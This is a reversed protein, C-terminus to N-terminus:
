VYKIKENIQLSLEKYIEAMEEKEQDKYLNSRNILWLFLNLNSATDELQSLTHKKLNEFNIYKISKKFDLKKKSIINYIFKEFLQQGEINKPIPAFMFKYKEKLKMEVCINDIVSATTIIQSIDCIKFVGSCDSFYKSYTKVIDTIKNEFDQIKSFEQLHEFEPFFFSININSRKKTSKRTLWLYKEYDEHSYPTKRDLYKVFGKKYIGFRGARGAIQLFETLEIIDIDWGNFKTVSSFLIRRISLNLGYGIANTAILIDVKGNNFLESQKIKTDPPLMGYIVATSFGYSEIKNKLTYIDKKSFCVVADGKRLERFSISDQQIDLNSLRQFKKIELEDNCKTAITKIIDEADISGVLIVTQANVGLIARAWANGRQQDNLMQVEDIIAVEYEEELNLMEITSSIHTEEKHLIKEEGTILSINLIEKKSDYIERALLKLPALYIGTDAKDLLKLANHTKGSNTPGLYAIIKRKKSRANLYFEEINTVTAKAKLLEIKKINEKKIVQNEKVMGNLYNDINKIKENEDSCTYTIDFYEKHKDTDVFSLASSFFNFIQDMFVKSLLDRNILREKEEEFDKSNLFRKCTNRYEVGFLGLSNKKNYIDNVSQKYITKLRDKLMIDFNRTLVSYNNLEILTLSHIHLSLSNFFFTRQEKQINKNITKQTKKTKKYIEEFEQRTQIIKQKDQM